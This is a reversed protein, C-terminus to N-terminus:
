FAGFGTLVYNTSSISQSAASFNATVDFAQTTTTNISVASSNAISADSATLTTGSPAFELITNLIVTGGSGATRCTIDGILRWVGSTQSAPLTDAGTTGITTSGLKIAVTINGPTGTTTYIGSVAFHLVTGVAFFNAGLTLSGVGTGSLSTAGTTSDTVTNTQSFIPAASVCGSVNTSYNGSGDDCVTAGASGPTSSGALAFVTSTGRRNATPVAQPVIAPIIAGSLGMVLSFLWLPWNKLLTKM